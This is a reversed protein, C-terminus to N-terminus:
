LRLGSAEHRSEDSTWGAKLVLDRGTADRAPAVWATQGGPQFPAGVSLDWRDALAAVIGPLRAVWDRRREHLDAAAAEVLNSPLELGPTV